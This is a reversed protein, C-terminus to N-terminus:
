RLLVLADAGFASVPIEDCRLSRCMMHTVTRVPDIMVRISPVDRIPVTGLLFPERGQQLSHFAMAVRFAGFGLEAIGLFEQAKRELQIFCGKPVSVFGDKIERQVSRATNALLAAFKEEFNYKKNAQGIFDLM